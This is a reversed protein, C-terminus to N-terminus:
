QRIIASRNTQPRLVFNLGIVVLVVSLAVIITIPEGFFLAALGAVTVPVISYVVSATRTPGIRHISMNYLLYGIGSAILGMYLIAWYAASTMASIRVFPHEILSLVVLVPLGFLAAHFTLALSNYRPSLRKIILAYVAWSVVAALMLLDGLNVKGGILRVAKGGTVVLIVGALAIMVGGYNVWSLRERIFVAAMVAMVAPNFANIVATNAVSTHKLAVFFLSHYGVIGFLGLAVCAPIDGVAIRLSPAKPVSAIVGLVALAV